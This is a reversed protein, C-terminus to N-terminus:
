LRLRRRLREFEADTVDGRRHLETLTQLSKVPDAPPGAVVASSREHAHSAAATPFAARIHQEAWRGGQRGAIRADIADTSGTIAVSRIMRGLLPMAVM